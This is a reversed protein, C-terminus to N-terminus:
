LGAESAGYEAEENTYGEFELQEILSSRSFPMVDLYNKAAKAAQQKWDAKVTDAAYTADETSYGEFELQDILGSRSFPLFDLYNEAARRANSQSTTENSSSASQDSEEEFYTDNEDSSDVDTVVENTSQSASNLSAGNTSATGSCGSVFISLVVVLLAFKKRM